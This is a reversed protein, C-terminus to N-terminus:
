QRVSMTLPEVHARLIDRVGAIVEARGFCAHSARVIIESQAGDLKSSILPVVGDTAGEVSPDGVSAIISHFPISRRARTRELEALLPYGWALEDISSNRSPTPSLTRALWSGASRIAGRDIPAGRHPTAIFVLRGVTPVLSREDHEPRVRRFDRDQPDLAGLAAKAV